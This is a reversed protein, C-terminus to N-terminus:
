GCRQCLAAQGSCLGARPAAHGAAHCGRAAALREQLRGDAACEHVGVNHLHLQERCASCAFGLMATRLGQNVEM